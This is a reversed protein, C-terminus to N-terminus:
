GTRDRESTGMFFVARKLLSPGACAPGKKGANINEAFIVEAWLASSEARCGGALAPYGCPVTQVVRVATASRAAVERTGHRQPPQPVIGDLAAACPKGFPRPMSYDAAISRRSWRKKVWLRM